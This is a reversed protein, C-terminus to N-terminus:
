LHITLIYTTPVPTGLVLKRKYKFMQGNMDTKPDPRPDPNNGEHGQDSHLNGIVGSM